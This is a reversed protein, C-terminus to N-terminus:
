LIEELLNKECINKVEVNECRLADKMGDFEIGVLEGWVGYLCGNLAVMVQDCMM